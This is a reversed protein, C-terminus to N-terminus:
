FHVPGQAFEYYTQNKRFGFYELYPKVGNGGWDHNGLSPFFRQTTAGNGYKGKYPYIFEQYYQGINQDITEATGNPYNNDGTTVIFDSNWSKVLNAVDAEPQGALGYDGIVAFVIRDTQAHTNTPRTCLILLVLLTVILRSISIKM